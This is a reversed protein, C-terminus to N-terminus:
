NWDSNIKMHDIIVIIIITIKQIESTRINKETRDRLVTRYSQSVVSGAIIIIIMMMMLSSAFCQLYNTEHCFQLENFDCFRQSIVAHACDSITTPDDSSLVESSPNEAIFELNLDQYKEIKEGEKYYVTHDWPSAIDM